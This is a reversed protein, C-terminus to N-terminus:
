SVERKESDLQMKIKAWDVPELGYRVCIAEHRGVTNGYNPHGYKRSILNEVYTGLARIFAAEGAAERAAAFKLARRLGLPGAQNGVDAMMVLARLAMRGDKKFRAPYGAYGAALLEAVQRRALSHQVRQFEPDRGALWFRWPWPDLWLPLRKGPGRTQALL